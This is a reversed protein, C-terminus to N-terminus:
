PFEQLVLPLARFSKRCAKFMLEVQLSWILKSGVISLPLFIENKKLKNKSVLMLDM